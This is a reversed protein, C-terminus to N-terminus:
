CGAPDLAAKIAPWRPAAGGAHADARALPRKAVGVGHEASISGGHAAVLACCPRTSAGRRGPARGSCTSTCTATASTASSSRAARRRATAGGDAIAAAVAALRALPVSVDLKHPIGAANVAENHAERYSWLAARRATDDAVAVDRM